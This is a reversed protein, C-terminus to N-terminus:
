LFRASQQAMVTNDGEFTVVPSFSEIIAPLSSWASYGAGGISQRIVFLGDNTQQTLVSKMGSTLHHLEDLLDFKKNEVDRLLKQYMELVFNHAVLGTM